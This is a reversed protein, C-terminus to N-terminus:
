GIRYSSSRGILVASSKPFSVEVSRSGWDRLLVAGMRMFVTVAIQRAPTTANVPQAAMSSRRHSPQAIAPPQQAPQAPRAQGAPPPQQQQAFVPAAGMILVLTAVLASGKM